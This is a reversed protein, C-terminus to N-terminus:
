FVDFNSYDYGLTDTIAHIRKYAEFYETGFPLKEIAPKLESMRYETEVELANTYWGKADDVYYQRYSPFELSRAERLLGWYYDAQRDLKKWKKWEPLVELESEWLKVKARLMERESNLAELKDETKAGLAEREDTTLGIQTEMTTPNVTSPPPEM